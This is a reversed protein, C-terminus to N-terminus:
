TLSPSLAVLTWYHVLQMFPGIPALVEDAAHECKNYPDCGCVDSLGNNEM